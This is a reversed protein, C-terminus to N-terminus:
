LLSKEIILIYIYIFARLSCLLINFITSVEFNQVTTYRSFIVKVISMEVVEDHGKHIKHKKFM